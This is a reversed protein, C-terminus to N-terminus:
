GTFEPDGSRLPPTPRPTARQAVRLRLHRAPLGLARVTVRHLGPRLRRALDIVLVRRGSVTVPQSGRGAVRARVRYAPLIGSVKVRVRVRNRGVGALSAKLKPRLFGTVLRKTKAANDVFPWHASDPFVEVQARPFTEKQREAQEVPIYPDKEGWIVLAPLNRPRLADRQARAYANPDGLTADRASRYYRLLACRTLRDYDDYMRDVFDDPLPRPQMFQIAQHFGERTTSAVQAEGLGPTSWVIALPHPVYDRLVGTDILVVGLVSAPHQSAWQIGWIGGFDHGGLVVRKVGLQDLVGQIYGAAGDTTHLEPPGAKDSKGWGPIDFAITRTFKGGAAVLADWDRASGPNGHVFVVAETAERPGAEIVRTSVGGISIRSERVGSPPKPDGLLVTHEAATAAGLPGGDGVCYQTPDPDQALAPAAAALASAAVLGLL